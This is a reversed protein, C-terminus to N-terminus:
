GNPLRTQKILEGKRGRNGKRFEEKKRRGGRARSGTVGRKKRKIMATKKKTQELLASPCRRGLVILVHHACKM